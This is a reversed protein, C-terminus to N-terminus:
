EQHATVKGQRMYDQLDEFASSGAATFRAYKQVTAMGAKYADQANQLHQRALIIESESLRGSSLLRDLVYIIRASVYTAHAVGEMPRLDPRLPSPYRESDDNVVLRGGMALGFLYLHATEHVMMTMAEVRGHIGHTNLAIAGWLSFVSAGGFSIGDSNPQSSILVVERTIATLENLLDPIVDKLLNLASVLLETTKDIAEPLPSVLAFPMEESLLRKYRAAQGQGLDGDDLTVFRLAISIGPSLGLAEDLIVQADETRDEFLAMVLEAYIGFLGPQVPGTEILRLLTEVRPPSVVFGSDLSDFITRFSNALGARIDRDLREGRQSNPIFTSLDSRAHRM